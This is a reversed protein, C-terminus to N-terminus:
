GIPCPGESVPPNGLYYIAMAGSHIEEIGAMIHRARRMQTGAVVTLGKKEAMESTEIIHRVGVPDVAVPKEIFVHKRGGGRGPLSPRFVPPTTLIILDVDCAIVKKYADFGSFMTDPTVKFIDDFPLKRRAM